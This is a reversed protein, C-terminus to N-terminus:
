LIYPKVRGTEGNEGTKRRGPDRIGTTESEGHDGTHDGTHGVARVKCGIFGFTGVPKGSACVYVAGIFTVTPFPNM